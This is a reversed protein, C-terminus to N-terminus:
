MVLHIYMQISIHAYGASNSYERLWSLSMVEWKIHWMVDRMPDLVKSALGVTWHGVHCVKLDHGIYCGM